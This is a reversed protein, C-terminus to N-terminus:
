APHGTQLWRREIPWAPMAADPRLAQWRWRAGDAPDYFSFAREFGCHELVRAAANYGAVTHAVVSRARGDVFARRVLERVAQTAYGRGRHAPAVSYEIEVAGDADPAGQYGGIGILEATALPGFPVFFLHTWWPPVVDGNWWGELGREAAGPSASYGPAVARGFRAAFVDDGEALAALQAASASVVHLLM